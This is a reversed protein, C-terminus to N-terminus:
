KFAYGLEELREKLIAKARYIRMEANKETINMFRSIEANSYGYLYKLSLADRYKCDMNKIVELIVNVGLRSFVEEFDPMEIIGSEFEDDSSIKLGKEMRLIDYCTNRVIIVIFAATKSCVPESIKSINKALKFFSEQVAEEANSQNKLISFATRYMMDRYHIYIEEFKDRDSQENILTFYFIMKKGKFFIYKDLKDMKELVKQWNLSNMM